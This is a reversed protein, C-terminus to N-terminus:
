ISALDAWILFKSNEAMKAQLLAFLSLTSATAIQLLHEDVIPDVVVVVTFDIVVVLVSDVVVVLKTDVDVM